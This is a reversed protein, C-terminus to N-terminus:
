RQLYMWFIQLGLERIDESGEEVQAPVFIKDVEMVLDVWESDGLAEVPVEFRM